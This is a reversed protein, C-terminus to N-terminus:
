FGNHPVFRADHKPNHPIIAPNKYFGIELLRMTSAAEKMFSPSVQSTKLKHQEPQMKM